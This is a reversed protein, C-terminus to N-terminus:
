LSLPAAESGRSSRVSLSLGGDSGPCGLKGLHGYGQDRGPLYLRHRREDACDRDSVLSWRLHQGDMGRNRNGALAAHRRVLRQRHPVASVDLHLPDKDPVVRRPVGRDARLGDDRLAPLDDLDGDTKLWDIKAPDAKTPYKLAALAANWAKADFGSVKSPGLQLENNAGAKHITEFSLGAKTLFDKARRLRHVEVLTRRFHPLQVGVHRTTLTIKNKEQFAELAPNVTTRVAGQLAPIYTVAAILCGALIIKLRGIKDSLWGFFVFFPTGILLSLGVLTYATLFDLKLTITLFFLAYFQGTYWVVGQGATAGLLALLM